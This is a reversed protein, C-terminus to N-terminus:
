RQRRRRRAGLRALGGAACTNVYRPSSTTGRQILLVRYVRGRDRAIEGAVRHTERSDGLAYKAINRHFIAGDSKKIERRRDRACYTRRVEYLGFYGPKFKARLVRFRSVRSVDHFNQCFKAKYILYRRKKLM